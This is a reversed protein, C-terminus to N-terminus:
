VHLEGVSGAIRMWADRYFRALAPADDSILLLASVAQILM